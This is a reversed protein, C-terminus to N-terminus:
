TTIKNHNYKTFIENERKKILMNAVIQNDGIHIFLFSLWRVSAPITLYVYKKRHETFEMCYREATRHNHKWGNIGM